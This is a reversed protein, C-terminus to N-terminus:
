AIGAVIRCIVKQAAPHAQFRAFLPGSAFAWIPDEEAEEAQGSDQSDQVGDADGASPEGKATQSSACEAAPPPGPGGPRRLLSELLEEIGLRPPWWSASASGEAIAENTTAQPSLSAFESRAFDFFLDRTASEELVGKLTCCLALKDLQKTARRSEFHVISREANQLIFDEKLYAAQNAIALLWSVVLNHTSARFCLRGRATEIRLHRKDEMDIKDCEHLGLSSMGGGVGDLGGEVMPQYWLREETLIVTCTRWPASAGDLNIMMELSGMKLQTGFTDPLQELAAATPTGTSAEGGADDATDGADKKDGTTGKEPMVERFLFKFAQEGGKAKIQLPKDERQLRRERLTQNGPAIIFLEHRAPDAQRGALALRKCLFDLIHDVTTDKLLPVTKYTNDVFYVKITGEPREEPPLM